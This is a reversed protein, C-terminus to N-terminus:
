ANVVDVSTAEEQENPPPYPTRPALRPETDVLPPQYSSVLTVRSVEPTRYKSLIHSYFAQQVAADDPAATHTLDLALERAGEAVDEPIDEYATELETMLGDTDYVYGTEDGTWTRNRDMVAYATHEDWPFEHEAGNVSATSLLAQWPTKRKHM